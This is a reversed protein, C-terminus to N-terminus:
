SDDPKLGDLLDCLRYFGDGDLVHIPDPGMARLRKRDSRRGDDHRVAVTARAGADRKFLTIVLPGVRIDGQEHFLDRWPKDGVLRVRQVGAAAARYAEAIEALTVDDPGPPSLPRPPPPSAFARDVIKRVREVARADDVPRRMAAERLLALRRSALTWADEGIKEALMGRWIRDMADALAETIDTSVPRVLVIAHLRLKWKLAGREFASLADLITCLHDWDDGRARGGDALFDEVLTSSAIEVRVGDGPGRFAKFTEGERLRGSLVAAILDHQEDHALYRAERDSRSRLRVIARLWIFEPNM